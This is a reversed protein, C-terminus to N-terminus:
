KNTIFINSCKVDRHLINKSHCYALSDTLQRMLSKINAPSFNVGSDLLGMLDHNLYEFILYFSGPLSPNLSPPLPLIMPPHPFSLSASYDLLM